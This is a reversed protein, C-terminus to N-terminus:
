RPQPDGAPIELMEPIGAMHTALPFVTLQQKQRELFGELGGPSVPFPDGHVQFVFADCLRAVHKRWTPSLTRAVQRMQEALPHEVREETNGLLALNFSERARAREALSTPALQRLAASFRKWVELFTAFPLTTVFNNVMVHLPSFSEVHHGWFPPIVLVDGPELVAVHAHELATRFKPYRELDAELLQVDTTPAYGCMIDMPAHYM